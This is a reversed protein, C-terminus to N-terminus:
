GRLEAEVRRLREEIWVAPWRDRVAHDTLLLRLRLRQREDRLREETFRALDDHFFTDTGATPPGPAIFDLFRTGKPM